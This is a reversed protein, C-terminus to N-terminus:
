LMVDGSNPGLTQGTFLNGDPEAALLVASPAVEFAEGFRGLPLSSQKQEKWAEDYGDLLFPTAIPGPAICNVNIGKKSVERALSKTFGILGAKSAAYHSNDIAGIQGIQSAINIIRGKGQTLMYKVAEKNCLFPARLNITLMRDWDAATLSLIDKQQGIGASCVLIDICQYEEIFKKFMDVIEAENELNAELLLVQIHYTSELYKKLELAETDTGFYNIALNAGEKAYSIAIEKGIGTSGGTILANKNKLKM